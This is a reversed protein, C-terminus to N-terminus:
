IEKVSRGSKQPLYKNYPARGAEEELQFFKKPNDVPENVQNLAHWHRLQVMWDDDRLTDLVVKLFPLQEPGGLIKLFEGNKNDKLAEKYAIELETANRIGFQRLHHVATKNEPKGEVQPSSASRGKQRNNEQDQSVQAAEVKSEQEKSTDIIHLYLISQDLMDVFRHSPIRTRLLVEIFNSHALNEINEIGEEMLRAQDYASIGDLNTIPYKVGYLPFLSGLHSRKLADQIITIGTEPFIGVMFAILLFTAYTIPNTTNTMDILASLAWVLVFTILLRVTIHNYAKPGLDARVYRRFIMNIIFFYAGLFGFSILVQDPQLFQSLNLHELEAISGVPLLVIIWGLTILLTSVLIPMNAGKFAVKGTEKPGYIDDVMQEYRKQALDLTYTHPNLLVVEKYFDNRLSGTRQIEFQQYLLAPLASAIAIFLLQLFRGLLNFDLSVLPTTSIYELGGGFFYIILGPLGVPIAVIFMWVIQRSLIQSLKYKDVRIKGAMLQPFLFSFLALLIIVGWFWPNTRIAPIFILIPVAIMFLGMLCGISAGSYDDEEKEPDPFTILKQLEWQHLDWNEIKEDQVHHVGFPPIILQDVTPDDNVEVKIARATRNEIIKPDAERLFTKQYIEIKGSRKLEKLEFINLQNYQASKLHKRENPQLKLGEGQIRQPIEIEEEAKNDIIYDFPPSAQDVQDRIPASNQTETSM